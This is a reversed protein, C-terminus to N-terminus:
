GAGDPTRLRPDGSGLDDVVDFVEFVFVGPDESPFDAFSKELVANAVLIINWAHRRDRPLEIIAREQVQPSIRVAICVRPPTRSPSSLFPSQNHTGPQETPIYLNHTHEQNFPNSTFTTPSQYDQQPSNPTQSTNRTLQTAQLPQPYTVPQSTQSTFTTSTNRTSQTAQLPQPCSGPQGTPKYHRAPILSIRGM